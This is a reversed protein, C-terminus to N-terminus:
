RKDFLWQKATHQATGDSQGLTRLRDTELTSAIDAPLDAYPEAIRIADAAKTLEGPSTGEWIFAQEEDDMEPDPRLVQVFFTSLPRDWGISVKTAGNKGSFDYRSM